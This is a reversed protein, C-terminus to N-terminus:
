TDARSDLAVLSARYPLEYDPRSFAGPLSPFPKIRVIVPRNGSYVPTRSAHRALAATKKGCHVAM